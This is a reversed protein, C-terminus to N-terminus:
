FNDEFFQKLEELVKENDAAVTVEEGKKVGLSMIAMLKAADVTREGKTITVACGAAKVAKVLLGAPRAHIGEKEKIVYTFEAM